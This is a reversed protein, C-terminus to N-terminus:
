LRSWFVTETKPKETKLRSNRRDMKQRTEGDNGHAKESWFWEMRIKAGGEQEVGETDNLVM